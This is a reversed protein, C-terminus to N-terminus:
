RVSSHFSASGRGAPGDWQLTFRWSGSMAFDARARYRGPEGIPTLEVGASMPAMGPMSMTSAIAVRGVDVPQQTSASRFEVVFENKGQTLDGSSSLLTIVMDNVKQTQVVKVDGSARSCGVVGLTLAGAILLAGLIALGRTKM